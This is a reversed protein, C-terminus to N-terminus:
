RRLTFRSPTTEENRCLKAAPFAIAARAPRPDKLAGNSIRLRWGVLHAATLSENADGDWGCRVGALDLGNM